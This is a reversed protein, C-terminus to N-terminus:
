YNIPQSYYKQRSTHTECARENVLAIFIPSCILWPCPYNNLIMGEEGIEIIKLYTTPPTIRFLKKRYM